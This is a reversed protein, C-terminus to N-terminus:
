DATYCIASSDPSCTDTNGDSCTCVGPGDSEFLTRANGTCPEGFLEPNVVPCGVPPFMVCESAMLTNSDLDFFTGPCANCSCNAPALDIEGKSGQGSCICEYGPGCDSDESCEGTTACGMLLMAAVILTRWLWKM